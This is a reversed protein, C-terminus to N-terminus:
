RLRFGQPFFDDLMPIDVFLLVVMLVACSVVAVMLGRQKYLKEPHEVPSSPRFALSLYMAMILAILPFALILEIRYRIAFAGFFLMATSGYFMISVLLRRDDYHRFSRRYRVHADRTDAMDRYEAFRKLGMFYCGIMWYSVLLSLPPAPSSAVVFWGVLMRIPNNVAETVVDLYPVDKTRLPPINYACGAIWLGLLAAAEWVSVLLGLGVGLVMLVLWQVIALRVNVLGSPVPRLRKEPHHLDSPADLVENIVYNSSAVICVAVVGVLLHWALVPWDVHEQASLAVVVGPLIFVNKFWHDVRMIRLHGRLTARGPGM